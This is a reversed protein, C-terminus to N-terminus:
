GPKWGCAATPPLAHPTPDHPPWVSAPVPSVARLSEPFILVAEPITVKWEMGSWGVQSVTGRSINETQGAHKIIANAELKSLITYSVFFDPSAIYMHFCVTYPVFRCLPGATIWQLLKSLSYSYLHTVKHLHEFILCPSHNCPSWPYLPNHPSLFVWLLFTPTPYLHQYFPAYTCPLSSVQRIHGGGWSFNESPAFVSILATPLYLCFRFAHVLLSSFLPITGERKTNLPPDGEEIYVCCFNLTAAVGGTWKM